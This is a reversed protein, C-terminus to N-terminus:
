GCMPRAPMILLIGSASRSSGPGRRVGAATNGAVFPPDVPDRDVTQILSENYDNNNEKHIPTSYQFRISAEFRSASEESSADSVDRPMNSEEM